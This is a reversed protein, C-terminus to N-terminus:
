LVCLCMRLLFLFEMWLTMWQSMYNPINHSTSLLSQLSLVSTVCPLCPDSENITMSTFCRPTSYHTGAKIVMHPGGMKQTQDMEPTPAVEINQIRSM